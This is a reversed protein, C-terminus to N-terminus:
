YSSLFCRSHALCQPLSVNQDSPLCPAFFYALWLPWMLYWFWPSHKLWQAVAKGTLDTFVQKLICCKPQFSLSDYPFRFWICPFQFFASVQHLDQYTCFRQTFHVQRHLFGFLSTHRSSLLCLPWPWPWPQLGSSPWLLHVPCVLAPCLLGLGEHPGWSLM